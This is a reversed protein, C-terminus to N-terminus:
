ISTINPGYVCLTSAPLITDAFVNFSAQGWQGKCWKYGIHNKDKSGLSRKEEEAKM